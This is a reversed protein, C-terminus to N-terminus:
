DRNKLLIWGTTQKMLQSAPDEWQLQYWYTATPVSRGNFKGDWTANNKNFTHLIKGYRDFISGKFNNYQALGSLDIIDNVGDGNPSIFNQMFFTFYDLTGTCSTGLVNVRIDLNVNNAVNYFTNSTQWTFGGDISYQLQGNSPNDATLVLTHNNFDVNVISPVVSYNVEATFVRTCVGNDITVTYTGATDVDITQTTEGTSWLYTYNTGSGADLTLIDGQCILGGQLTSTISPVVEITLSIATSPCGNSGIGIVTYTTTQTPSVSLTNGTHNTGVWQYTDAGSATLMVSDGECITLSTATLDVLPPTMSANVQVQESKTCVVNGPQIVHTITLTYLGPQDVVPTLTNAGSVINGNTTTWEFTSGQPYVSNTAMLTQTPNACTLGVAPAIVPQIETDMVLELEAVESCIGRTVRVYVIQGTSVFATPNAITNANGALADAQNVYYSFGVGAETTIAAEASTLNFTAGNPGYCQALTANQVVPSNIGNITISATGPCTNGPIYVEVSYVGAQTATYSQGTAGAIPQGDLFWQYTANPAQTSAVLVQSANNCMDITSPLTVGAGNQIDVGIQFSGAELFVGSDYSRDGADALVMKFHYTQGPIVAAEATIPITHGNFNTNIPNNVNYGAFFQANAAGCSLTTGSHSLAPHINTVSVPGGGNPLVAMNSYAGGVPKLLLAFSDSYSCPFTTYYEESAFIYNFKVTNSTPVFDFELAVADLLARSPNTAAVLDPDSGTNVYDSLTSTILNNGARHAYGTTLIVGADFPFTSTSKNFYGWARNTNTVPQSPSVTVNTVNPTSCGGGGSILVEKVLQEISFNSEPYQPANVDIFNGARSTANTTEIVSPRNYEQASLGHAGLFSFGLYFIATRLRM